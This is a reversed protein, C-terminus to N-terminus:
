HNIIWKSGALYPYVPDISKSPSEEGKGKRLCNNLCSFAGATHLSFIRWSSGPVVELTLCLMRWGVRSGGLDAAAVLHLGATVRCHCHNQEGEAVGLLAM